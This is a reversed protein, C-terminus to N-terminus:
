GWSNLQWVEEDETFAERDVATHHWLWTCAQCCLAVKFIRHLKGTDLLSIFNGETQMNIVNGETASSKSSYAILSIAAWHQRCDVTVYFPHGAVYLCAELIAWLYQSMPYSNVDSILKNRLPELIIIWVARLSDNRYWTNSSCAHMVLNWSIALDSM